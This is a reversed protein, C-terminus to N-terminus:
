APVEELPVYGLTRAAEDAGADKYSQIKEDSLDPGRNPIANIEIKTGSFDREAHNIEESLYAQVQYLVQLITVGVAGVIEEVHQDRGPVKNVKIRIGMMENIGAIALGSAKVAATRLEFIQASINGERKAYEDLKKNKDVLLREHTEQDERRKQKEERLSNRLEQSSMREIDDLTLGALTGGKALEELEQDDESVIELLKTKNLHATLRRMQPSMFKVTAQMLKQAARPAIGIREVAHLYDGHPENEKIMIIQKGAELMAAASENLFFKAKQICAERSYLDGDGYQEDIRALRRANEGDAAASAAAVAEHNVKTDIVRAPPLPKRGRSM